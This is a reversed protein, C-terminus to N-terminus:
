QILNIINFMPMYLAVVMGGVTAAWSSSSCRSSCRRSPTSPPRSRRTTSTPSGKSCTTSPARRRASRWCRCSWRRSCRTPPWRPPSRSAARSRRRPTRSRGPWRGHQGRDRLHDGPVRPHPRRLAAAGVPHPLVPHHGDQPGAQRLRPHAAQTHGVCGPGQGHGDVAAPRWAALVEAVIIFPAFKTVFGSVALLLRTPLPLQWRARQLADEFMPVVFLLMATVIIIVLGFVAVPYTM